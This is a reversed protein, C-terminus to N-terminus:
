SCGTGSGCVSCYFCTGIKQTLGGCEQCPPGELSNSSMKKELKNVNFAAVGPLLEQDVEKKAEELQEKLIFENEMFRFVYDVVSSCMRIDPNTTIGNPEFTQSKFKEVLKQLPVGYQLGLSVMTAFSDLLGLITSGQKSARIFLEGPIGDEFLGVTLYGEFGRIEFKHTISKRTTSLYTRVPFADEKITTSKIEKKKKNSDSLPQLAKAGDRYVTIGKCGSDYALEYAELIDEIAADNPMNITKSISGNLHKNCAAVMLIHDKWCIENATKLVESNYKEQQQHKEKYKKVCTPDIEMTGGGALEKIQKAAFLPEIGTTDCDMMFGITGCPALLTLQSNRLGYEKMRKWILDTEDTETLRMALDLNSEENELFYEFPGLKKALVISQLYAYTTMLKTINEAWDRGEKSNYAIGKQILAAGLNSFGLGLPRTAKTTTEIEKTPYSANSVIIDMATIMIIIDHCFSDELFRGDNDLYKILNLSALNCSSSNIACFEGCPNSSDIRGSRPVPNDKNVRDIFFLGPDGTEWAQTAIKKFLDKAELKKEPFDLDKRPKYAWNLDEKIAEMFSDTIGISHNENQFDVTSYAEEASIGAEILLTAKKEEKTKCEIFEEIDPHDVNLIVMKASRRLRGGSRISGACKDWIRLFSLVGSSTGKNSLAEGKARLNSANVGAGGGWKFVMGERKTHELIDEMNDEVPFIFCASAMEQHGKAGVNFLVPSNFCARQNYLIDKLKENFEEPLINESEDHRSDRKFYGDKKGWETIRDAVRDFIQFVSTESNTAYKSAAIRAANDSWFEPVEFNEKGSIINGDKDRITADVLRTKIKM